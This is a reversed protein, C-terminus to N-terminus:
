TGYSTSGLQAGISTTTEYINIDGQLCEGRGCPIMDYDMTSSLPSHEVLWTRYTQVLAEPIVPDKFQKIVDTLRDGDKTTVTQDRLMEEEYKDWTSNDMNMDIFCPEMMKDWYNVSEDTPIPVEPVHAGYRLRGSDNSWTLSHGDVDVVVPKDTEPPRIQGGCLGSSM